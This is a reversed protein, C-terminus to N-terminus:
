RSPQAPLATVTRPLRRFCAHVQVPYHRASDPQMAPHQPPASSAGTAAETTIRSAPPKSEM